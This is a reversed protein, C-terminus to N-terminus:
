AVTWRLPPVPAIACCACRAGFRHIFFVAGLRSAPATRWRAVPLLGISALESPRSLSYFLLDIGFPGYVVKQFMSVKAM